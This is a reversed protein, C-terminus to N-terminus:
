PTRYLAFKCQMTKTEQPRLLILNKRSIMANRPSTWPELCIMKRPPDTWVVNYHFNKDSTLELTIDDVQDYLSLLHNTKSIFDIGKNLNKLQNSTSAETMTLHDFCKDPLGDIKVKELDKVLFYPHFGLSFPMTNGGKNTVTSILELSNIKLRIEIEVTFYFPYSLLSLQDENLRLNVGCNDNLSSIEWTNDRAFGHQNISYEKDNLHLKNEPLDGCIPFLVPVGGRISKSTDEFRSQDFYLMERGQCIWSTILGGREPVIRLSDGTDSNLYEWHKYPIKNRSLKSSM